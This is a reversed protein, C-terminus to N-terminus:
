AAATTATAANHSAAGARRGAAFKAVDFVDNDENLFVPGEIMVESAIAADTSKGILTHCELLEIWRICGTRRYAFEQWEM